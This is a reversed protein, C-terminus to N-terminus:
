PYGYHKRLVALVEPGSLRKTWWTCYHLPPFDLPELCPPEVTPSWFVHGDPCRVFPSPIEVLPM